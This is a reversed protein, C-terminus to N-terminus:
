ILKKNLGSLNDWGLSNLLFRSSTDHSSKTIVRIALVIKFNKFNRMLSNPLAMGYLAAIILTHSSVRSRYSKQIDCNQELGWSDDSFTQPSWILGETEILFTPTTKSEWILNSPWTDLMNLADMKLIRLIDRIRFYRLTSLVSVKTWANTVQLNSLPFASSYPSGLYRM